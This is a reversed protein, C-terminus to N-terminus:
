LRDCLASKRYIESIGHALSLRRVRPRTIARSFPRSPGGTRELVATKSSIGHTRFFGRHPALAFDKVCSGVGRHRRRHVPAVSRDEEDGPEQDVQGRRHHVDVHHLRRQAVFQARARGNRVQRCRSIKESAERREEKGPQHRMTQDPGHRDDGIGGSRKEKPQHTHQEHERDRVTDPDARHYALSQHLSERPDIENM